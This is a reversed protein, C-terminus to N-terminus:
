MGLAGASSGVFLSVGIHISRNAGKSTDSNRTYGQGLPVLCIWLRIGQGRFVAYSTFFMVVFPIQSETSSHVDIGQFRIPLM